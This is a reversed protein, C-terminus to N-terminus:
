FIGSLFILCWAAIGALLLLVVESWALQNETGKMESVSQKM